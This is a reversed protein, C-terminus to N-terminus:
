DVIPDDKLAPRDAVLLNAEAAEWAEGLSRDIARTFRQSSGPMPTIEGLYRFGDFEYLDIRAFPIPLAASVTSAARLLGAPDVPLPLAASSEKGRRIDGLRNWEGDYYCSQRGNAGRYIQLVLPTQGQFSYIKWDFALRDRDVLAREAITQDASVQGARGLELIRRKVEAETTLRSGRLLDRYAEGEKRLVFVGARSAGVIPKVVFTDPLEHFDLQEIPVIETYREPVHLGALAALDAVGDKM